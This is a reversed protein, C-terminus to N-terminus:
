AAEATLRIRLSQLFNGILEEGLFAEFLRRPQIFGIAYAKRFFKAFSQSKGIM